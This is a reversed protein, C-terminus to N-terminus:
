EVLVFRRGHVTLSLPTSATHFARHRRGLEEAGIDSPLQRLAAISAETSRRPGWSLGVPPLPESRVLLPAMHAFLRALARAARLQLWALDIGPPVDFLLSGVIPGDDVRRTMVHATVGFRTVGDYFALAAPYRGPYAYSAPHFNYADAVRDLLCQPVVVETAYAILRPRNEGGASLAAELDAVTVAHSVPIGPALTELLAMLFLADQLGCLLVIRSLSSPKM